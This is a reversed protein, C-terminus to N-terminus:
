IDADNRSRNSLSRLSREVVRVKSRQCTPCARVARTRSRSQPIDPLWTLEM